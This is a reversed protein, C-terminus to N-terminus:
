WVPFNLSQVSEPLVSGMCPVLVHAIRTCYDRERQSLTTALRRLPNLRQTPMPFIDVAENLAAKTLDTGFFYVAEVASRSASQFREIEQWCVEGLESPNILSATLPLTSAAHLRGNRVFSVDVYDHQVGCLAVTRTHDEPYNFAHANLADLQAGRIHQTHLTDVGAVSALHQAANLATPHVFVALASPNLTASEIPHLTAAFERPDSGPAHLSLEFALFERMQEASLERGLPVQYSLLNDMDISVRMSDAKGAIDSLIQELEQMGASSRQTAADDFLNVPTQTANIYDLHYDPHAGVPSGQLSKPAQAVNSMDASVGASADVGAGVGADVSLLAVYTRYSDFYISAITTAAQNSAGQSAAQSASQTASQSAGQSVTKTSTPSSTM